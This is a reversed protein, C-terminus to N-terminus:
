RRANEKIDKRSPWRYLDDKLAEIEEPTMKELPKSGSFSVSGKFSIGNKLKLKKRIVM